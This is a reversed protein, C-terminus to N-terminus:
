NDSIPPEEDSGDEEDFFEEVTEEAKQAAEEVKESLPTFDSKAAEEEVAEQAPASDSEAEKATDQAEEPQTEPNLSVYSRSDGPKDEKESSFDDYDEEASEAEANKKRAFYCVAGIASGIVASFVLLKGFKKAM